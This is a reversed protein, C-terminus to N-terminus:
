NAIEFFSSHEVETKREHQLIVKIVKEIVSDWIEYVLRLTAMNTYTKRLVDYIFTIFALIYDVKMWWNDNLSTEKVSQVRAVDDEKYSSWEDSIVMNQLGKKLSRFRKIMVITSAFITPTIPLLKLSNFSNFMSVRMSYGVIFNKIFNADDVIQSIWSCQDYAVSNRETNKAVCINKLILNLTHM